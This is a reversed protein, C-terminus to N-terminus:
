CDGLQAQYLRAWVEDFCFPQVFEAVRHDLLVLEEHSDEVNVFHQGELHFPAVVEDYSTHHLFAQTWGVFALMYRRDVEMHVNHAGLALLVGLLKHHIGLNEKHYAWCHGVQAKNPIDQVQHAVAKHNQAVFCHLTAELCYLAVDVEVSHYSAWELCLLHVPHVELEVLDLEFVDSVLISQRAEEGEHGDEVLPIDEEEGDTVDMEFSPYLLSGEEVQHGELCNYHGM